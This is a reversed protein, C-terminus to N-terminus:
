PPDFYFTCMAGNMFVMKGNRCQFTGTGQLCQSSPPFFDGARAEVPMDQTYADPLERSLAAGPFANPAGIISEHYYERYNNSGPMLGYKGPACANRAPRVRVTITQSQITDNGSKAVLYYQGAVSPAVMVFKLIYGVQGSVPQGAKYWQYTVTDFGKAAYGALTLIDGEEVSRDEPQYQWTLISTSGGTTGGPNVGTTGGTPVGGGTGGTTGGGVSITGGGTSGTNGTGGGSGSGGPVTIAGGPTAGGTGGSGGNYSGGTPGSGGSGSPGAINSSYVGNRASTSTTDESFSPSCNQFMLLSTSTAFLVTMVPINKFLLSKM